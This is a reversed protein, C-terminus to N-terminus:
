ITRDLIKVAITHFTASYCGRSTFMRFNVPMLAEVSYTIAILCTIFM